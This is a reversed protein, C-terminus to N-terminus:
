KGGSGRWPKWFEILKKPDMSVDIAARMLGEGTLALLVAVPIEYTEPDRELFALVPGTFIVASFMAAFATFFARWLSRKFATVVKIFTAGATALWFNLDAVIQQWVGSM